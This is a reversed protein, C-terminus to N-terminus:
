ALLKDLQGLGWQQHKRHAFLGVVLIFYGFLYLADLLSGAQFERGIENLTSGKAMEYFYALILSAIVGLGIFAFTASEQYKARANQLYLAVVPILLALVLADFIRILLYLVAEELNRDWASQVEPIGYVVISAGLLAAATVMGWAFPHLRTLGIVKLVSRCAFFLLGYILIQYALLGRLFNGGLGDRAADVLPEISVLSYLVLFTGLLLFVRRMDGRYMPAVWWALLGSAILLGPQLIKSYWGGADPPLAVAVAAVVLGAVSGLLLIRTSTM